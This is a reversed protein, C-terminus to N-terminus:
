PSSERSGILWRRGLVFVALLGLPLPLYVVPHEFRGEVTTLFLAWLGILLVAEILLIWWAGGQRRQLVGFIMVLPLLLMVYNTTATRLAVLNTIIFCLGVVWRFADVRRQKLAWWTAGVLYVVLLGSILWEGWDGLGPLVVHTIIWVPSGIATYSTYRAVQGFFDAVWDPEVLWSVGLFLALWGAFSAVFRWRRRLIAWLLLTPILLFVMQPKFTCLMLCLGAWFDREQRLAWLSLALMAFVLVAFQGLLLARASPYFLFVWVATCALLWRPPRWSHLRLALLFGLMLCVELLVLWVAEAWAYSVWMLPWLLFVTYFPYAFPGPDFAQEEEPPIVRGYILMQIQRTAEDSYPSVGDRWFARAGAWRSAFDNAGPFRSTFFRHTAVVDALLFGLLALVLVFRRLSSHGPVMM